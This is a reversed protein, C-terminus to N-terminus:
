KGGRLMSSGVELTKQHHSDSEMAESIKEGQRKLLLNSATNDAMQEFASTVVHPPLFPTNLVDYDGASLTTSGRLVIKRDSLSGHVDFPSCVLLYRTVNMVNGKEYLFIYLNKPINKKLNGTEILRKIMSGYQKSPLESFGKIKGLYSRGGGLEGSLYLGKGKMGEPCRRVASTIMHEYVNTEIVPKQKSMYWYYVAIAPIVMAFVVEIILRILGGFINFVYGIALIVIVLGVIMMNKKDEDTVTMAGM